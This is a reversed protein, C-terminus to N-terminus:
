ALRRKRRQIFWAIGGAILLFAGAAMWNYMNTMTSPLGSGGSSANQDTGSSPSHNSNQHHNDQSGSPNQGNGGNQGNDGNQGSGGNQGNDNKTVQVTREVTTENGARDSVKYTLKYTGPQHVNVSGSVKVKATLDGDINDSAEYGPDTFTEGVKLKIPNAGHLKIVPATNDVVYADSTWQVDGGWLDKARVHLYWTGDQDNLRLVDGNKFSKWGGAPADKSQSWAYELTAVNVANEDFTVKVEVSKAPVSQGGNDVQIGGPNESDVVVVKRQAEGVNGAKDKVKYTVEYAGPKSVDVKSADVEVQDTVNGDVNDSATYGPDKYPKGLEWKLPNDGLLTIKPAVDDHAELKIQGVSKDAAQDVVSVKLGYKPVNRGAYIQGPNSYDQLDDFVPVATQGALTLTRGNIDRYDLFMYDTGNLSFAADQIQYSTSAVTGDSWKATVQHADVVGLFGDGPHYGVWNDGYSNDVYWVVLGPDYTMLSHGRAIHSLATDVADWNRWELLYYHDSYLKGDSKSFGKLTFVPDGEGGDSLVAQGDATVKINDVFFGNMNTAWDTMYRFQIQIKKGVYPKLDINEHIWGGSSGTYGPLNDKITPYGDPSIQDTTHPTALSHWTKGDDESVQVMAFDWGEETDYWTDYSLTAAKAATLDVTAAMQHDIEDGNGGWYEGVGGAPTNILRAKKPLNIRLADPNTGKVSAEDLNIETPNKQLQYYDVEANRFWNLNPMTSQLYEKDYPSFGSPETGPIAGSWSGSSMISWYGVPEGVGKQTYLTDYEDPLGLDHGYEHAFVGAAGDEPELTYNWGALQGGWYPVDASTGPIPSPESGVYSRHSWIADEGLSGGGAEEGVGSHIVMLHDIIGDAERYNGDGDLDYPDEQDYDKLNISSDKAAAELAEKILDESDKDNGTQPDNGGYYKADHKAQYWGAVEGEISYSGGSQQEYFQKVSLLKQGSPGEYGDDGFIMDRFHEPKYPDPEQESKPYYLVPDDEPSINNHQLDPYEILLVLVKDTRTPGSWGEPQIPAVKGGSKVAKQQAKATTKPKGPAKAKLDAKKQLKARFKKVDTASNFAQEKIANKNRKQLYQRVAATKQQASAGKKIVGEKTLLGILRDENVLGPDFSGGSYGYFPYKTAAKDPTSVPNKAPANVAATESAKAKVAVNEQGTVATKAAVSPAFASFVLGASLLSTGVIKRWDKM